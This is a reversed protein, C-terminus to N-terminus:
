RLSNTGLMAVRRCRKEQDAAYVCTEFVMGPGDLWDLAAIWFVPAHSVWQRARRQGLQDTWPFAIQWGVDADLRSATFEMRFVCARETDLITRQCVVQWCLM